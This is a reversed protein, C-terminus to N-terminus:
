EERRLRYVGETKIRKLTRLVIRSMHSQESVLVENSLPRLM